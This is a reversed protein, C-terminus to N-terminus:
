TRIVPLDKSGDAVLKPLISAYSPDIRSGAPPLASDAASTRITIAAGSNAPLVFPGRYTSGAALVLVDGARAGNLAAQFDGGAPVNITSASMASGSCLFVTLIRALNLSM